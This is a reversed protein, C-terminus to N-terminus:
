REYECFTTLPWTHIPTYKVGTPTSESLYLSFTSVLIPPNFRSHEPVYTAKRAITVHPCYARQEQFIDLSLVYSKLSKALAYLWPPTWDLGLYLVKPKFFLDCCNLNLTLPLTAKSPEIIQDIFDIISDCQLQTINGLFSLTIHFNEPSVARFTDPLIKDRWAAIKQKDQEKLDVAIFLRLQDELDMWM